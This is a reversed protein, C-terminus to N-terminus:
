QDVDCRCCPRNDVLAPKAVSRDPQKRALTHHELTFPRPQHGPVGSARGFHAAGGAPPVGAVIPVSGWTSAPLAPGLSASVPAERGQNAPMDLASEGSSAAASRSQSAVGGLAGALGVAFEDLVAYDEGKM